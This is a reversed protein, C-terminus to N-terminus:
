SPPNTIVELVVPPSKGPDYFDYIDRYIEKLPAAPRIGASALVMGGNPIRHLHNGAHRTDTGVFAQGVKGIGNLVAASVGVYMAAMVSKGSGTQTFSGAPQLTGALTMGAVGALACLLYLYNKKM